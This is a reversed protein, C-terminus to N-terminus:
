LRTRITEIVAQVRPYLLALAELRPPIIQTQQEKVAFEIERALTAMRQAGMTAATSKLSHASRELTEWDAAAWAKRMEELLRECSEYFADILAQIKTDARKGLSAKLQHLTAENVVDATGDTKPTPEQAQPSPAPMAPRPSPPEGTHLLHAGSKYLAAVLERIQVPKSIYDDMGAELCRERDGQLANATMAIIRPQRYREVEARVRRTAELGDMEPMQVDMLIVDYSQRQLANLVERGNAAVDARYGLRELLMLAVKQNVLNDEALLIRLPMKQAMEPDFRFAEQSPTIRSTEFGKAWLQLLLNYLQSAHLPRMLVGAFLDAGNTVQGRYAQSSVLVIPLNPQIDRISRAVALTDEDSLKMDLFVVDFTPHQRLAELSQTGSEVALTDIGWAPLLQMFLRRYTPSDDIVLARHGQLQPLYQLPLRSPLSAVESALTFHFTSGRGVESEVWMTGGMMEVLRKSIALGLGTGGYRRTMSADLQSFSKFLRDMRDAPIGIGTDRVAFHLVPKEPTSLPTLTLSVVIEGQETFKVANSLLNVLVQRVRTVDGYIAPPVNVDVFAALDLHKEAARPAVLDLAEELCLHVNFPQCELEMRRAEIKSFDLIDNIIALLADGSIRITDVYDRQEPTLPTDLLLSTMGIVANMPTRIEHSMTALFESKAQNAAEAAARAEEAEQKARALAEARQQIAAYLRANEIAVALQAGITMFLAQDHATYAYSREYDQIAMVGFVKDGSLLPVGMWSRAPDGLLPIQQDQLFAFLEQETNFRLPQRTRIIYGTLGVSLPRQGTELREGHDYQLAMKWFDEGEQYTAIYFSDTNFIRGVQRHVEELLAEVSLTSALARSIENLISLETIRQQADSYLRANELAIAAQSAIAELLALHTNDYVHPDEYHQVSIVGLVRDGVLMPVGMWAASPRGIMAIGLEERKQQGESTLLLPQRTQIVHGTLGMTALRITGPAVEDVNRSYVFEVQNSEPYYLAIYMNEAYMVRRTQQYILDLLANFDLTSSLAKGIDTITSLELVRRRTEAYLQANEIAGAILGALTEALAMEAFNFRRQLDGAEIAMIGLPRGRSAMPVLLMTPTEGETERQIPQMIRLLWDLLPDDHAHIITNAPYRASVSGYTTLIRLHRGDTELLGFGCGAVNFILAIERAAASLIAELDTSSTIILAIRNLFALEENRRLTEQEARRRETIDYLTILCGLEQGQRNTLISGRVDYIRDHWKLEIQTSSPDFLTALEPPFDPIVQYSKGLFAPTLQLIQGAQPNFDLLIGQPDFVLISHELNAIITSHAIPVAALLQYRLLGILLFLGSLSFAVPTPDYGYPFFSVNFVYLINLAFPFSLSLLLILAQRRYLSASRVIANILLAFTTLLIAYSYVAHVWFWLRNEWVQVTLPGLNELHAERWLGHWPQTWALLTTIQPLILLRILKARTLWREHGTQYLAMALLVVPLNAYCPVILNALLRKTEASASTLEAMYLVSWLAMIAMMMAFPVTGSTKRRQHWAYLACGAALFASVILPWLYTIM